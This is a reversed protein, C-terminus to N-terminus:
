SVFISLVSTAAVKVGLVTSCCPLGLTDMNRDRIAPWSLDASVPSPSAYTPTNCASDPLVVPSSAGCLPTLEDSLLSLMANDDLLGCSDQAWDGQM